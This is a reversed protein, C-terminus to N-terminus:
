EYAKQRININDYQGKLHLKRIKQKLKNRKNITMLYKQVEYLLEDPMQDIEKKIKEKIKMEDGDKKNLLYIHNKLFVINGTKSISKNPAKVM